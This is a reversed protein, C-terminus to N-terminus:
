AGIDKRSAKYVFEGGLLGGIVVYAPTPVNGQLALMVYSFSTGGLLRAIWIWAREPASLAEM